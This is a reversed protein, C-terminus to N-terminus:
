FSASEERRWRGALRVGVGRLPQEVCRYTLEAAAALLPLAIVTSLWDTYRALAAACQYIPVHCLYLAYSRSGMWLVASHLRGMRFLDRDASALWVPVAAVLAMGGILFPPSQEFFPSLRAMEGIAAILIIVGALPIRALRAAAPIAQRALAPMTALVVGWLLGDNRMFFYLRPHPLPFQVTILVLAVWGIHRRVLLMLPPLLVYFQEELSLSWYPYSPGYPMMPREAFRINAYGFIGALAGSVNLEPAGFFPPNTFIVSGLVMLALWAWAAPWIRFARRVWFRALVQRAPVRALVGPLLSTTIVFGSIVFFLDVGCWLPVHRLMATLWEQHFLLNFWTHQVLVCAIAAARLVQIDDILAHRGLTQLRGDRPAEVQSAPM